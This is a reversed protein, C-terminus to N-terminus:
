PTVGRWVFDGKDEVMAPEDDVCPCEHGVYKDAVPRWYNRVRGGPVHNDETADEMDFAKLVFRADNRDARVIGTGHIWRSVSVHYEPGKDVIDGPDRAVELASIVTISREPYFWYRGEYGLTVGAPTPGGDQWGDGTPTKPKIISISM